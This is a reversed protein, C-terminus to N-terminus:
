RRHFHRRGLSVCAHAHTQHRDQVCGRGRRWLAREVDEHTFAQVTQIANVAEGALASTDALRDQSARSLHRVRRGFLVIPAIVLPVGILCLGALKPSTVAMMALSGVAMVISRLAISISSGVLTQILTTDATLRSLVEGTRTAEFFRPSLSLVHSFVRSRVDAVVREGIWTVLYFRTASTVGMVAVVAILAFFYRDIHAVEGGAFVHDIMPRVAAPLVLTAAAAAILAIGALAIFLRYPKLFPALRRLPGLGKAAPRRAAQDQIQEAKPEPERAM